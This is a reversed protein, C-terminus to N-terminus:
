HPLRIKGLVEVEGSDSIRGVVLEGEEVLEKTLVEINALHSVFVIPTRGRHRLLLSSAKREFVSLRETDAAAIERLDEDLLAHGFAITATDRSRCMPSSIVFPRISRASFAEGLKRAETRGVATLVAEGKCGGSEDWVLVKGGASQMPRTLVVINPETAIHTWLAEDAHAATALGLLLLWRL